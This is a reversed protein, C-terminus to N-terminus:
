AHMRVHLNLNHEPLFGRDSNSGSWPQGTLRRIQNRLEAKKPLLAGISTDEIHNLFGRTPGNQCFWRPKRSLSQWPDYFCGKKVLSQAEEGNLESHTTGYCPPMASSAGCSCVRPALSAFTKRYAIPGRQVSPNPLRQLLIEVLGLRPLVIGYIPRITM